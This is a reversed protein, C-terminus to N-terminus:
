AIAASTPPQMITPCAAVVCHSPREISPHMPAEIMAREPLVVQGTDLRVSVASFFVNLSSRDAAHVNGEHLQPNTQISGTRLIQAAPPAGTRSRAAASGTVAEAAQHPRM